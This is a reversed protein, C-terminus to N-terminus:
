PLARFLNINFWSEAGSVSHRWVGCFKCISFKIQPGTQLLCVLFKWRQDRCQQKINSTLASPTTDTLTLPFLQSHNFSWGRDGGQTLGTDRHHRLILMSNESFFFVNKRIILIVNFLSSSFKGVIKYSGFKLFKVALNSFSVCNIFM